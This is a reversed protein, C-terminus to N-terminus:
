GPNNVPWPRSLNPNGSLAFRLPWAAAKGAYDVGVRPSVVVRRGDVRRGRCIRLEEGNLNAGDFTRDIAMAQCLKGPGSAIEEDGRGAALGRLRRMTEAGSVPEGARILVAGGAGERGAVANFMNHMGYVFYVYACGGARFLTATRPTPKGTWAHSARDGEGLYAETEVIRLVLAQGRYHRVLYRGLLGRAVDKPDRRFFRSSLVQLENMVGIERAPGARM